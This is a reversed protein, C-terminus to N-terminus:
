AGGGAGSPRVRAGCHELARLAASTADRVSSAVDMPGRACGASLHGARSQDRALFGYPDRDLGDAATALSSSPVMGTALVVLDVRQVLRRSRDMDEVEVAPSGDIVSVRAVKGAVFQVGQSSETEALFREQRGSARRDIFYVAITATPHQERVYRAQKASAMCCLGSCYRLHADDRSGACQVFAVSAPPRGDSPRVIRGSTPGDASALREMMMSTIVDPHAGFGLDGLRGADYPRWGTAWIVAGAQIELTRPKMTLDVAHSPCVAVCRACSEGPCSTADIAYRPPWAGPFALHAARRTRLGLDFASPLEVPCAAACAGCASCREAVFRPQQRIRVQLEGSRGTVSEVEALTLCEIRPSTRLRRLNIELGCAPPCLKPFYRHMQAVRGGVHPEREILTVACGAEAAEIAASLGAVGAGVVVLRPQGHSQLAGSSV